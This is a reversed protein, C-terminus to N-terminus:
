GGLIAESQNQAVLKYKTRWIANLEDTGFDCTWVNFFDATFQEFNRAIIYVGGAKQVREAFAKQDDSMRDKGIKIEIQLSRGSKTAGIDAIGKQVTGARHKGTKHDFAPVNPQRWATADTQLNLFDLVARTLDNATSDSYTSRPLAYAPVNSFKGQKVENSVAALAALADPKQQKM